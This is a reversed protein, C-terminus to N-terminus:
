SKQHGSHDKEEVLLSGMLRNIALKIRARQDNNSYIARAAAIFEEGHNGERACARVQNELDWLTGNVERLRDELAGLESEGAGKDLRAAVEALHSLELAVNALQAAQTMRQQKVELITKKDILEGVSVPVWVPDKVPFEEENFPTGGRPPTGLRWPPLWLNDVGSVARDPGIHQDHRDDCIPSKRLRRSARPRGSAPTTGAM